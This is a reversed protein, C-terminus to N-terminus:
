LYKNGMSFFNGISLLPKIASEDQSDYIFKRALESKFNIYNWIRITSDERSCTVILPRQICVDLGTIPGSHYGGYILEMKVKLRNEDRSLMKNYKRSQVGDGTVMVQNLNFVATTNSKFGCIVQDERSTIDMAIVCSRSKADWINHLIFTDPEGSETDVNEEIKLWLAFNGFESGIIFGKSYCKIVSVGIGIDAFARSIHQKVEYKQDIKKIVYLSGQDTGVVVREDDVWQHDTFNQKQNLKLVDTPNRVSSEHVRFIKFIEVGSISVTHSDKPNICIKNVPNPQSTTGVLKNRM